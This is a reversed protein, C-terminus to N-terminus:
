VVIVFRELVYTTQFQSAQSLTITNNGDIIMITIIIITIIITMDLLEIESICRVENSVNPLLISRDLLMSSSSPKDLGFHHESKIDPSIEM